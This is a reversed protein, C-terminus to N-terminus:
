EGRVFGDMVEKPLRDEQTFLLSSLKTDTLNQYNPM